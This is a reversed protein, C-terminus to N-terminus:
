RASSAPSSERRAFGHRRLIDGFRQRARWLVQNFQLDTLQLSDRISSRPEERLYFRELVERDRQVPLHDMLNRVHKAMQDHEVREELTIAEDELNVLV